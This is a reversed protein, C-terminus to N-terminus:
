WCHWAGVRAAQAPALGRERTVSCQFRRANRKLVAQASGSRSHSKRRVFVHQQLCLMYLYHCSCLLCGYNFLEALTIYHGAKIYWTEGSASTVDGMERKLVHTEGDEMDLVRDIEELPLFEM